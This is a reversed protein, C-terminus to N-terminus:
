KKRRKLENTYKKSLVNLNNQKFANGTQAGFLSSIMWGIGFTLLDKLIENLIQKDSMNKFISDGSITHGEIEDITINHKEMYKALMVKASAMEGDVGRDALEKLKKATDLIKQRDKSM